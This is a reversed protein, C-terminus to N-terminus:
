KVAKKKIFDYVNKKVFLSKKIFIEGFKINILLLLALYNIIIKVRFSHM